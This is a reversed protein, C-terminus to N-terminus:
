VYKKYYKTMTWISIATILVTPFFLWHLQLPYPVVLWILMVLPAVGVSLLRKAHHFRTASENGGCARRIYRAVLGDCTAVAVILLYQPIVTILMAARVGFLKAGLMAVIVYIHAPGEFLDRQITKTIASSAIAGNAWNRAAADLGTWGFLGQYAWSAARMSLDPVTSQDWYFRLLATIGAVPDDRWLFYAAALDVALAICIMLLFWLSLHIAQHFIWFFQKVGDAGQDRHQAM